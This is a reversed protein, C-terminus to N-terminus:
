DSLTGFGLAVYEFARLCPIMSRITLMAAVLRLKAKSVAALSGCGELLTKLGWFQIFVLVQKLPIAAATLICNIINGLIGPPPSSFFEM